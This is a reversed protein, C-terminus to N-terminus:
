VGCLGAVLRADPASSGVANDLRMDLKGILQKSALDHLAGGTEAFSELRSRGDRWSQVAKANEGAIAQSDGLMLAANVAALTLGLESPNNDALGALRRAESAVQRLATRCQQISSARRADIQATLVRANGLLEGNWALRSPDDAALQEAYRGARRIAAEASRDDGKALQARALVLQSRVFRDVNTMDAADFELSKAAGQASQQALELGEESRGALLRMDALKARNSVRSALAYTDEPDDALMAEYISNEEGLLRAAADNKGDATMARAMWALTIAFDFKDQWDADRSSAAERKITIARELNAIATDLNRQQYQVIGLNAVASGYEAKWEATADSRASLDRLLDAAANMQRLAFDLDGQVFAANGLGQVSYAHELVRQPNDPEFELQRASAEVSRRHLEMSKETNGRDQELDALLKLVRSRRGLANADMTYNSQIEYYRNARDAIGGLVQLQVNPQLNERLDSIMYEVLGEAQDRQVQAENRAEIAFWALGSMIVALSLSATVIIRSRIARRKQDRRVLEDLKVGLMAAVLKLKAAQKGDGSSRADAALPTDEEIDTIALNKDIAHTLARPFCEEAERGPIKSAGPEGGVILALIKSPDRHTKFWAIEFNVWESRASTPSCIVLLFESGALAAEVASGISAGAAEEERDKFLPRLSKPIPGLAGDQGVLAKPTRYSEISQHAWKGWAADTWSYSIFAKYEFPQM